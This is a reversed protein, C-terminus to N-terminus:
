RQLPRLIPSQDAEQGRGVIASRLAIMSHNEADLAPGRFTDRGIRVVGPRMADSRESRQVVRHALIGIDGVDSGLIAIEILPITIGIPPM